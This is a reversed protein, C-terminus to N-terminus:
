TWSMYVTYQCSRMRRRCIFVLFILDPKFVFYEATVVQM